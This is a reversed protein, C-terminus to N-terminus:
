DGPYSIPEISDVGLAIWNFEIDSSQSIDVQIRFGSNTVNIITYKTGSSLTTVGVPTATVIPPESYDSRFSVDIFTQGSSLIARGASDSGVNIKDKLSIQNNFETKGYFTASEIVKVSKAILEDNIRIKVVTIKPIVNNNFYSLINSETLVVTGSNLGLATQIVEIQTQQEKIANVLLGTLQSYKVGLKGNGMTFVLQPAVTQVEQAILGFEQQTGLGTESTWNYSVGRLGKVTQIANTLTSVNTKLSVDSPLCSIVGSGDTQLGSACSALDTFAITGTSTFGTAAAIAGSNDIQFESGAGVSFLSGPSTTGVGLRTNVTDFNLLGAQINLATTSSALTWAQSQLSEIGGPTDLVLSGSNFTKFTLDSSNFIEGAQLYLSANSKITSATSNTFALDYAVSVDGATAIQVPVNSRVQSQTVAFISAGANKVNFINGVVGNAGVDVAFIDGSAVKASAPNWYVSALTGTSFNLSTSSVNLGTGTTLANANMVFASTSGTGTTVSSNSTISGTGSNFVLGTTSTTNGVTITKANASTGINIAATTASDINLAGSSNQISHAAGGIAVINGSSNVQFQATSGVNFLSTTTSGGIAVNGGSAIRMRETVSGAGATATNFVIRGPPRQGSTFTGDIVFDIGAINAHGTGSYANAQFSGIVDNNSVLTPSSLTGRSRTLLLIGRDTATNSYTSVQVVGQNTGSGQGVIDLKWEPNTTGIGVNGGEFVAAYNNDAGSVTNVFLGYNNTATGALGTFTGTSIIQLGYKNIGDTTTNTSTNQFIAAYDTTTKASSSVTEFKGTPATTGVGVNGNQFIAAYNLDAGSASAYLGINTLTNSGAAETSTNNFYASYNTLGLATTDFTGGSSISLNKFNNTTIGAGGQVMAIIDDPSAPSLTSGSRGWYSGGSSGSITGSCTLDGTSNNVTCGTAGSGGALNVNISGDEQLNLGTTSANINLGGLGSNITHAAGGIAVINGSSDVQFADATGVTFLSAPSTDGIGFNGGSLITAAAGGNTQLTLSNAGTTGITMNGTRNNITDVLFTVASQFNNVNQIILNNSSNLNIANIDASNAANRWILSQANDLKIGGGAVHLKGGAPSATGIGVNGAADVVFPTSDSTTGDDNIRFSLGSGGNTIMAAAISTSSNSVLINLAAADGTVAAGSSTIDVVAGTTTSSAISMVDDVTAPSLTTGARNWYSGGTAGSITGSCTLDGTLNNVTCGTAGSGGAINVDISGDTQLNLATLGNLTLGSSESITNASGGISAINGSSDIQFEASSGVNFLSTATSGGISLNGTASIYLDTTANRRFTTTGSAGTTFIQGATISTSGVNLTGTTNGILNSGNFDRLQNGSSDLRINGNVTLTDAPSITGIGVNGGQFIAAYNNDGGTVSSIFLGYNNTAAGGAGTFAGTSTIHLGYKNVGNTTTNTSTNEFIASYTTTTTAGAINSVLKGGPSVTGIGVNGNADIVFPSTDSAQDNVRFSVGATTNTLTLLETTANFFFSAASSNGGFALDRTTTTPYITNSNLSWLTSGGGGTTLTYLDNIADVLSQRLAVNIAADSTTLPLPADLINDDFVLTGASTLTLVGGSYGLSNAANGIETINGSSNVQFLDGVSFLSSPTAVAIGVNGSQDIVFPSSDGSQDNVRFSNGTGSNTISLVNTGTASIDTSADLVLSNSFQAFNLSNATIYSAGITSSTGLVGAATNTVLGATNLGSFTISGSSTIGTATVIVGLNNVQFADNNGVTLLGLPTSDGIGVNGNSLITVAASNNTIISLTHPDTTGLIATGGFANGGDRFVTEAVEQLAGEVENAAFYNGVDTISLLNANRGTLDSFNRTALDALSSGTKSIKSWAISASASIDDNTITGNLIKDSTIASDLIKDTTVSDNALKEETINGNIIKATAVSGDALKSETIAGDKIQLTDGSVEITIDDVNADLIPDSPTGSNIIGSGATITQVGSGGATTCIWVGASKQLIEGDGCMANSLKSLSISGSALKAETIAGDQIKASIVANDAIKFATVSGDSIKGETVSGDVIKLSTVSGDALKITTVANSAIKASEIANDQIKVSTIINDLLKTTTIANDAIKFSTISSNALHQTLVVGDVLKSSTISADLLKITGISGDALKETTVAGNALKATVISGDAIEFDSPTGSGGGEVVTASNLKNVVITSLKDETISGDPISGLVDGTIANNLVKASYINGNETKFELSETLTGDKITAEVLQASVISGDELNLDITNFVDDALKDRTISQAYVDGNRVDNLDVSLKNNVGIILTSLIVASSLSIGYLVNLMPRIKM